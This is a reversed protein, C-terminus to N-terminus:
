ALGRPLSNAMIRTFRMIGILESLPVYMDGSSKTQMSTFSRRVCKKGAVSRYVLIWAYSNQNINSHPSM